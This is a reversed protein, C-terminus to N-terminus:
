IRPIEKEMFTEILDGVKLDQYDTLSVGCEFGQAVERADDKFRRLSNITGRWIIVGDRLFRVKSGRTIVGDKVYCGAIAGAKPIKFIQRVEAEGTVIEEYEPVLMGVLAREMDEIVQYIIEYTRIEVDNYEALDRAARNPRVNFGVITANSAIALQVDNETIGGVSRLVFVFKVEDRELKKLSETIAELSGQVDAKLVVNLTAVEGRSIQEFIDELKAGPTTVQSAAHGAFRRRQERAEGIDRADSIDNTVRLEDGARPPESLGLLQIPMSPYAEKVSVGYADIMAKVRGWAAGAVIGDGIRLTGAKVLVNAVPGRGVDLNAELVIGNANVNSVAQLELLDAMLVLHELLDDIGIGQLASVEIMVTDGGWIEPVLGLESLQQMVRTPDADARDIKNIAVAIPVNAAKAHNIAEVTQPMVGDDAAVVLIVLDTVNAGRARMATFAEHGPTDIFTLLRENWTVQYAGIHQTIGGAELDVMNTQRIRDLLKTKGHDVHGMVTIVPPRTAMVKDDKEESFYKAILTAEQEQGADVLKIEAGIEAAYLEIMDDSLSQTATVMEGHLLLFRIVEGASRNLKPGLEQATSSREVIVEFDPVPATSPVYSTLQTPELKEDTQKRRKQSRKQPPRSGRGPGGPPRQGPPSELKTNPASSSHKQLPSRTPDNPSFVSSGPRQGPRQAGPSRTFNSRPGQTRPTQQNPIPKRGGSGPPPPIAKGTSSTMGRPPPPIPRGTPSTQIPAAPKQFNQTRKIGATQKGEQVSRKEIVLSDQIVSSDEAKQSQISAGKSARLTPEADRKGTGRVNEKTQDVGSIETSVEVIQDPVKPESITAETIEGISVEAISLEGTPTDGSQIDHQEIDEVVKDATVKPSSTSGTRRKLPTTQEKPTEPKAVTKTVEAIKEEHKVLGEQDAKRRVRDAQPEEISSSHNKVDIGLAFCLELAEKNSIGLEKALDYVRVKKTAM